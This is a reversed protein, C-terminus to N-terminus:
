LHKMMPVILQMSQFIDIFHPHYRYYDGQMKLFFVKSDANSCTNFISNEILKLIDDCFNNLEAEIKKKYDKLLKL